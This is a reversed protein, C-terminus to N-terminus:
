KEYVYECTLDNSPDGNFIDLKGNKLTGTYDITAGLFTETMKFNEGELSWTLNFSEDNRNHTGTGDAKLELTFPESEDKATDPDGVFKTYKGTYTGAADSLAKNNGCGTLIFLGLVLLIVVLSISIMRKM